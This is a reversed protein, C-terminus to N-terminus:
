NSSILKADDRYGDNDKYWDKYLFGGSEAWENFKLYGQNIPSRELPVKFDYNINIVWPLGTVTKYYRGIAPISNDDLTGLYNLNAKNTPPHDPLHVERGRDNDIFIFPDYPPSGIVEQEVPNTFTIVINIKQYADAKVDDSVIIVPNDQGTELGKGDVEILGTTLSYGTVNEILDASFPLQVGFGNNFSAGLHKITYVADIEVVQDDSNSITIFQYNVVLDNFDYDGKEPWNDEFAHAGVGYISPTYTNYAKDGDNPYEDYFDIVGDGDTDTDDISSEDLPLTALDHIGMSYENFRYEWGGTVKDMVLLRSPTTNTALWLEHNSDFTTSTPSFPLSEASIRVANLQDGNYILKYLGGHTTMFITGDDDVKIDGGYKNTGLNNITQTSILNGTSADLTYLSTGQAYLLQGSEHVYDLRPGYKYINKVLEFTQEDIDYRYLPYPFSNGVTYLKRNIYDIACTYSGMPLQDIVVLEGTVPNITFLDKSGNVGYLIDVPDEAALKYAQPRYVATKNTIDIIESSYIGMENKVVYLQTVYSPLSVILNFLGDDSIRSAILDNIPDPKDIIDNNVDQEEENSYSITDTTLQDSYIYVDYRATDGVKLNDQFTIVVTQATEFNFSEPIILEDMSKEETPKDPNDDKKCSGVLIISTMLLIGLSLKLTTKM